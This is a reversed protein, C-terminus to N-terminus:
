NFIVVGMKCVGHFYFVGMKCVENFYFVCMKCLTKDDSGESISFEYRRRTQINNWWHGWQVKEPKLLFDAFDADGDGLADGGVDVTRLLTM